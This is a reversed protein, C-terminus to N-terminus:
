NTANKNYMEEIVVFAQELRDELEPPCPINQEKIVKLSDEMTHVLLSALSKYDPNKIQPLIAKAKRIVEAVREVDM